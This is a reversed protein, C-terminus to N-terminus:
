EKARGHKRYNKLDDEKISICYSGCREIIRGHLARDLNEIGSLRHESSIITAKKNNYRYNILDFAIELMSGQKASDIGKLFDDIVLVEVNGIKEIERSYKEYDFRYAEAKHFFDRWLIYKVVKGQKLLTTATATCIHSKGAGPQGGIFFWPLTEQQCYHKAGFVIKKQWEADAKYNEFTYRDLMDGFGSNKANQMQERITVCECKKLVFEGNNETAFYGRNFCKQCDYGGNPAKKMSNYNNIQWQLYDKASQPNGGFDIPPAGEPRIKNLMEIFGSMKEGKCWEAAM